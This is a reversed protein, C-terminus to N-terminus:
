IKKSAFRLSNWRQILNTKTHTQISQWPKVSCEITEWNWYYSYLIKKAEELTLNVEVMPATHKNEAEDFLENDVSMIIYNIWWKKTWEAIKEIVKCFSQISSVHEICSVSFIYDFQEKEIGFNEIDAKEFSLSEERIWFLKKNEWFKILASELVDVWVVIGKSDQIKQAIPISHRGVGCGIDLVSIKKSEFNDVMNIISEIPRYLWSWKEWLEKSFYLNDHYTKEYERIKELHNKDM